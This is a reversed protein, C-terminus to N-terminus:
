RPRRPPAPAAVAPSGRDVRAAATSVPAWTWRPRACRTVRRRPTPDVRDVASTGAELPDPEGRARGLLFGAPERYGPNPRRHVGDATLLLHTAVVDALVAAPATRTDYAFASALVLYAAATWAVAATGRFPGAFTAAFAVATALGAVLVFSRRPGRGRTGADTAAVM